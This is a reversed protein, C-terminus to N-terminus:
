AAAVSSDLAPPAQLATNAPAAAAEGTFLVFHPGPKAALDTLSADLADAKVATFGMAAPQLRKILSSRRSAPRLQTLRAGILSTRQMSMQPAAAAARGLLPTGWATGQM